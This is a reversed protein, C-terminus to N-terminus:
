ENYDREPRNSTGYFIQKANIFIKIKELHGCNAVGREKSAKVKTNRGVQHRM